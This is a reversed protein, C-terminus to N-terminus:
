YATTILQANFQLPIETMQIIIIMLRGRYYKFEFIDEQKIITIGLM